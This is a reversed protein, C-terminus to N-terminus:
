PFIVTHVNKGHESQMYVKYTDLNTTEVNVIIVKEAM